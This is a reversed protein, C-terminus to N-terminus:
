MGFSNSRKWDVLLGILPGAPLSITQVAAFLESYKYVTVFFQFMEQM